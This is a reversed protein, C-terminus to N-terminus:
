QEEERGGGAGTAEGEAAPEVIVPLDAMGHYINDGSVLRVRVHLTGARQPVLALGVRRREGPQLAPYSLMEWRGHEVVAAPAPTVSLLKFEELSSQAIEFRIGGAPADSTNYMVATVTYPEGVVAGIYDAEVALELRVPPPVAPGRLRVLGFILAGTVVGIMVWALGRLVRRKLVVRDDPGHYVCPPTATESVEFIGTVVPHRCAAAEADFWRCYGCKALNDQCGVCFPYDPARTDNLAGCQPCIVQPL